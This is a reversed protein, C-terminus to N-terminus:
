ENGEINSFSEMRSTEGALLVAIYSAFGHNCSATPSDHEWLTGTKEAMGLYYGVAERKMQGRLGYRDLLCLRMLNGIFANSPWVEKYLGKKQRGPGFEATLRKWLDPHTKPTAIGHFFAYYQCTETTDPHKANDRFWKGDYSRERITRKLRESQAALDDRGYLKAMRALADAYTMNSPWNIGDKTLRSDNAHSWEVFVWKPLNTLVGDADRYAAFFKLLGEVRPKLMGVTERDKTREAYNALELMLWMSWNPIFNGNTHDGPYCMSVMGEPMCPFEEALVFNRLFTREIENRGTFFHEAPGTFYSDCLWGARERSPCDTFVDVANQMFTERAADFIKREAPDPIKHPQTANPNKYTRMELREIEAEGELMIAEAFKFTYPEFSELEFEGAEKVDWAVVNCCGFRRLFDLRDGSLIEDFGVLLRGPKAVKVKLRLFGTNNIAGEYRVGRGASVWQPGGAAVAGDPAIDRVWWERAPQFAIAESTWPAFTWPASVIRPPRGLDGTKLSVNLVHTPRYSADIAFDPYPAGRELFKVTPANTIALATCKCMVGPHKWWEADKGVKYVESHARQISYRPVERVRGTRYASWRSRGGVGDGTTMLPKGDALVEAQLFPRHNVIYYNDVNYGVGEIVLQNWGKRAFKAIDWEDIRFWGHPGRAPGYAAFAGNVSVRFVSCGSFRLKLPGRGNWEFGTMFVYSSNPEGDEEAVWIPGAQEFRAVADSESAVASVAVGAALAAIVTIKHTRTHM